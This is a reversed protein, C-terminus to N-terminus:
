EYSELEELDVANASKMVDELIYFDTSKNKLFRVEGTNIDYIRLCAGERIHSHDITSPGDTYKELVEDLNVKETAPFYELVPCAPIGWQTLMRMMDVGNFQIKQGITTTFTLNYAYMSSNGNITGYKFTTTLGWKEMFDKSHKSNDAIPMIPRDEGEWGVVEFYLQYGVPLLHRLMIEHISRFNSSHYGDTAGQFTDKLVRRTGNLFVYESVEYSVWDRIIPIKMLPQLWKRFPKRVTEYSWGARQSTGHLKETILIECLEPIAGRQYKYQRTDPHMTLWPTEKRNVKAVKNKQGIAKLTATNLWKNCIQIGDLETFTDGEKLKNITDYQIYALSSMPMWLGESNQGRFNQARIRRNKESIFGGGIRSGAEDLRPFLDNYECYDQTLQGDCPFFIGLDGDQTDISVVVQFGMCSGLALRNANPHPRTVIRSVIAQYM